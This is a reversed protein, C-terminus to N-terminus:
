QWCAVHDLAAQHWTLDAVSDARASRDREGTGLDLAELLGTSISSVDLPDVHIVHSNHAVSPVGASAVVCAGAHLAEVPPLGWGEALAVYAVVRADRYLGLLMSREISGLVIADQTEVSGWGPPGALVLSGLEHRRERAQRHAEILRVINKRPERTGAYLTFTGRVGHADLLATVAEASAALHSSDDVGLRAYHIREAGIGLPVLREGLTPSTTIVRLDGRRAILSLREEHFKIGRRTTMQPEDRWLLDHLAVSHVADTAGGAFPGAMSTAHVIRSDRDVGLPVLPWVRTLVNLPVPLPNLRLPLSRTEESAAGRPAVGVVEFQGELSALGEVLGRVYTGIGGPQRRYLQDVSLSITRKM